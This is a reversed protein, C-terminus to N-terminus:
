PGGECIKSKPATRGKNLEFTFLCFVRSPTSSTASCSFLMQVSYGTMGVTDNYLCGWWGLVECNEGALEEIEKRTSGCVRM